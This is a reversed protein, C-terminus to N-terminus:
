LFGGGRGADGFAEILNLGNYIPHLGPVILLYKDTIDTFGQLSFAAASRMARNKAQSFGYLARRAGHASITFLPPYGGRKKRARGHRAVSLRAVCQGAMGLRARVLRAQGRNGQRAKCLRMLCRRTRATMGATQM